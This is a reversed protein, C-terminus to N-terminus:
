FTSTYPWRYKNSVSRAATVCAPLRYNLMTSTAAASLPTGTVYYAPRYKLMTCRVAASRSAAPVYSHARYNNMSTATNAPRYHLMISSVAAERASGIVYNAPWYSRKSLCAAAKGAIVSDAPRYKLILATVFSTPRHNLMIATADASRASAPMYNDPQYKFMAASVSTASRRYSVMASSSSSTSVSSTLRVPMTPTDFAAVRSSLKLGLKPPIQCPM